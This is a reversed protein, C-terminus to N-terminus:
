LPCTTPIVVAITSSDCPMPKAMGDSVMRVSIWRIIDVHFRFAENCDPTFERFVLLLRVFASPPLDLGVNLNRSCVEPNVGNREAIKM